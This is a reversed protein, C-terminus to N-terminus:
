SVTAGHAVALAIAQAVDLRVGHLSLATWDIADTTAGRLDAKDLRAGSLRAHSLDAGAFSTRSLDADTFDAERLRVGAFDVGALEAGRMGVYSWDGGDVTLPRLACGAFHSGTLKCGLFSADFLQTRRFRCRLFATREHVSSGLVAGSFDCEVFECDTTRLELLQADDFRCQAFRRGRLEDLEWDVRALDAGVTVDHFTEVTADDPRDVGQDDSSDPM